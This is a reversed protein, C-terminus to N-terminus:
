RWGTAPAIFNEGYVAKGIPSEPLVKPALAEPWAHFGQMIPASKQQRVQLQQAPTLAHDRDWLTREVLSLKGIFELAVKAHNAESGVKRAEDFYRRAHAM